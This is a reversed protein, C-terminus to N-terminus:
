TIKKVRTGGAKDELVWGKAKLEDRIRDAEAWDKSARAETRAAVLAQIEEPIELDQRPKEFLGLVGGLTQMMKELEHLAAKAGATMEGGAIFSNGHRVLEYLVAM